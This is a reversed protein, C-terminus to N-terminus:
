HASWTQNAQKQCATELVGLFERETSRTEWGWIQMQLPAVLVWLCPDVSWVRLLWPSTSRRDRVHWSHIHHNGKYYRKHNRNFCASPFCHGSHVQFGLCYVILPDTRSIFDMVRASNIGIVLQWPSLFEPWLAECLFCIENCIVLEGDVHFKGFYSHNM